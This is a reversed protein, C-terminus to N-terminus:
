GVRTRAIFNQMWNKRMSEVDLLSFKYVQSPMKIGWFTEWLHFKMGFKGLGQILEKFHSFVGIKAGISGELNPVWFQSISMVNFAIFSPIGLYVHQRM